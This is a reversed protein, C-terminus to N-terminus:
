EYSRKEITNKVVDKLPNRRLDGACQRALFMLAIVIGLPIGIYASKKKRIHRIIHSRKQDSDLKDAEKFGQQASKQVPVVKRGQLLETIDEVFQWLERQQQIIKDSDGHGFNLTQWKIETQDQLELTLGPSTQSETSIINEIGKFDISGYQRSILHNKYLTIEEKRETNKILLVIGTILPVFILPMIWFGLTNIDEPIFLVPVFLFCILGYLMGGPRIFSFQYRRPFVSGHAKTYVTRAQQLTMLFANLLQKSANGNRIETTQWHIKRGDVLKLELYHTSNGYSKDYDYLIEAFAVKGYLQSIFADSGLVLHEELPNRDELIYSCVFSLIFLSVLSIGVLWWPGLSNFKFVFCYGVPCILVLGALVALIWQGLPRKGRTKFAYSQPNEM